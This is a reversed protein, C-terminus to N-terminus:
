LETEWVSQGLFGSGWRRLASLLSRLAPLLLCLGIVMFSDLIGIQTSLTPFLGMGVLIGTLFGLSMVTLVRALLHPPTTHQILTQSLPNVMSVAAGWLAFLVLDLPFSSFFGIALSLVGALSFGGAIFKMSNRPHYFTLLLSALLMGVGFSSVLDGFGEAGKELVKKSLLLLLINIPGTVLGYLAMFFFPGLLTRDSSFVFSFGERVEELMGPHRREGLPAHSERFTIFFLFLASAIFTIGNIFMEGSANWLVALVGGLLPGILLGIQGTTQMLANASLLRNKDVILPIASYLAPGFVGSMTSILFILLYLLPLTLLHLDFLLPILLVLVGRTVDVGIMIAKKSYRDLLVGNLWGFLLPPLTQLVGVIVMDEVRHTFLYVFWFLAVRNLNEGIQSVIQGGLLLSFNRECLLARSSSLTQPLTFAM